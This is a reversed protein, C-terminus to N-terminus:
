KAAEAAFGPGSNHMTEVLVGAPEKHGCFVIARHVAEGSLELMVGDLAGIMCDHPARRAQVFAHDLAVNPAIGEVAFTHRDQSAASFTRPRVIPNELTETIGLPRKRAQELAPEFGAARVLNAHMQRMEAMRQEAVRGVAARAVERACFRWILLSGEGGDPRERALCQVGPEQAERVWRGSFPEPKFGGPRVIKRRQDRGKTGQLGASRIYM